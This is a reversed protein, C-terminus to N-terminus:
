LSASAERAPSTLRKWSEAFASAAMPKGFLYGQMQECGEKQLFARQLETEVGEAVTHL